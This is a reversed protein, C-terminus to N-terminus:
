LSAVQAFRENMPIEKAPQRQAHSERSGWARKSCKSSKGASYHAGDDARVITREVIYPVGHVEINNIFVHGSRGVVVHPVKGIMARMWADRHARQALFRAAALPFRTWPYARFAPQIERHQKLRANGLFFEGRHARAEGLGHRADHAANRTHGFVLYPNLGGVVHHAFHAFQAAHRKVRFVASHYEANTQVHEM